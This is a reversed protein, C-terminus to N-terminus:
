AVHLQATHQAHDLIATVIDGAHVDALHALPVFGGPTTAGGVDVSLTASTGNANSVTVDVAGGGAPSTATISTPSNVTVTTAAVAGFKVTTGSLFGSGTITVSTGGASPGSTPSVRTVTPSSSPATYTTSGAAVSMWGSKIGGYVTGVSTGTIPAAIAAGTSNTVTVQNGQIYGSM